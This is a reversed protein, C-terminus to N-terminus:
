FKIFFFRFGSICLWCLIIYMGMDDTAATIEMCETVTVPSPTRAIALPVKVRPDRSPPPTYSRAPAVPPPTQPLEPPTEIEVRVRKTPLTPESLLPRKRKDRM